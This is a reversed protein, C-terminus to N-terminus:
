ACARVMRMCVRLCACAASYVRACAPTSMCSQEHLLPCALARRAESWAVVVHLFFIAPPLSRRQAANVKLVFGLNSFRAANRKAHRLVQAYLLHAWTGLAFGEYVHPIEYKHVNHYWLRPVLERMYCAVCCLAICRINDSLTVPCWAM